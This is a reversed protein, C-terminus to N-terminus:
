TSTCAAGRITGGPRLASQQRRGLGQWVACCRSAAGPAPRQALHRCFHACRFALLHSAAGVSPRPSWVCLQSQGTGQRTATGSPATISRSRCTAGDDKTAPKMWDLSAALAASFCLTPIRPGSLGTPQPSHATPLPPQGWQGPSYDTAQAQPTHPPSQGCSSSFSLSSAASFAARSSRSACTHALLCSPPPSAAGARLASTDSQREAQRGAQRGGRLAGETGRPAPHSAALWEGHTSSAPQSAPQSHATRTSQPGGHRWSATACSSAARLRRSSL